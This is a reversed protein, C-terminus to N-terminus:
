KGGWILCALYGLAFSTVSMFILAYTYQFKTM